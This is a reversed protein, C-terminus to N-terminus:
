RRNVGTSLVLIMVARESRSTMTSNRYRLRLGTQLRQAQKTGVVLAPNVITAFTAITVPGV